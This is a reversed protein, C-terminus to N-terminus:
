GTSTRSIQRSNACGRASKNPVNRDEIDTLIGYWRRIQGREDRLPVGRALLWRYEGNAACRFRAESEFPEGTALSARWKEGFLQLDDAHVAATWGSGATDEASLGTYEAWRKNVFENSGDPFATWAMAPITEVMDRLQRFKRQLQRVRFQYAVWLLALFGAVCAAKFWNTQYYAPAISFDLVDGTENWVGSNNSAIM